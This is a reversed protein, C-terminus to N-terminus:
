GYVSYVNTEAKIGMFHMHNTTVLKNIQCVNYSESTLNDFNNM